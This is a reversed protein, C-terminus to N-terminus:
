VDTTTFDRSHANNEAYTCWELNTVRADSRDKNKHNVVPKSLPNPLFTKAVLVHLQYQKPHISVWTYGSHHQHGSSIRGRHNRIQGYTSIQYGEIGDVANPDIPAWEEDEHKPIDETYAWGFGYATHRRGQCVACIKSKGSDEMGLAASAQAISPYTALVDGDLSLQTVARASVLSLDICRRKHRNQETVTAWELNCVRNDTPDHNKHNVTPKMEPNPLFAMAVLQHVRRTHVVGDDGHLTISQYRGRSAQSKLPRLRSKNYIVGEPSILYKAFGSASRWSEM